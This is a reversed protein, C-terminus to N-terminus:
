VLAVARCDAPDWSLVVADGAAIDAGAASPRSVVFSTTGASCVYSFMPGLFTVSEVRADVTGAAAGPGGREARIAEAKIVVLARAGRMLGTEVGARVPTTLGIDVWVAGSEVATVTGELLNAQGIFGAIFPHAPRRYVEVPAGIQVIRGGDMVAMRDAMALAETQDHTVLIATIGVARQVRRIEERMTDRLKADLNSLPEDLLLLQPRSVVARALAVRQQQGGSLQRPYRAGLGELQVLKLADAVAIAIVSASAKRMRLGFGINEAVTLHPFLAYNQFVLGISRREPVWGTVEVGRLVVRGANVEEFGAVIRLTTTKGCGSPGLLCLMEGEEVELSLDEVVATRGYRKTVGDLELYAM